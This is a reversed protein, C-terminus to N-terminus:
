CPPPPIIEMEIDSDFVTKHEIIKEVVEKVPQHLFSMLGIGGGLGAAGMTVALLVTRRFGMGEHIVINTSPEEPYTGVDYSEDLGADRAIGRRRIKYREAVDHQWINFIRSRSKAWASM